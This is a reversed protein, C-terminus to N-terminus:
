CCFTGLIIGLILRIAPADRKRVSAAVTTTRAQPQDIKLPDAFGSIGKILAVSLLTMVRAAEM